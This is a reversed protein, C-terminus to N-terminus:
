TIIKLDDTKRKAEVISEPLQLVMVSEKGAAAAPTAAALGVAPGPCPGRRVETMLYAGGLDLWSFLLHDCDNGEEEVRASEPRTWM